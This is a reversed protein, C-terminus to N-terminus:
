SEDSHLGELLRLFDPRASAVAKEAGMLKFFWTVGRVKILGAVLRTRSEGGGTFDYLSVSGARSRVDKRLAILQTENLPPLAIQGRWRNVNALEGGVDGPLAVVTAELKEEGAPVDFTAARMGTGGRERWGPPAKWRLGRPRAGATAAAEPLGEKPVRRVEIEDQRCASLLVLLATACLAAKM